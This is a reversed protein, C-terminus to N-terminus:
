GIMGEKAKLKTFPNGIPESTHFTRNDDKIPFMGKWSNMVSQQVIKQMLASDNGSLEIAKNINLKLAQNTLPAKILKRMKIFELFATKLEPNESIVPYSELIDDFSLVKTREKKSINIDTNRNPKINPIPKGQPDIGNARDPMEMQGTHCICKGKEIRIDAYWKTRDYTSKNFNGSLIYGKSELVNLSYRIQKETLYPFQDCFAKISNYTWYLEDHENQENTRNKECWYQINKYIIAANIGVDMAVDTDFSNIM